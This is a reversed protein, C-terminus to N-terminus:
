PLNRCWDKAREQEIKKLFERRCKCAKEPAKGNCIDSLGLYKLVRSTDKHTCHLNIGSYIFIILMLGMFGVFLKKFWEM